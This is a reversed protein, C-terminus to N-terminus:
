IVPISTQENKLLVSWFTVIILYSVVDHYTDTFWFILYLSCFTLLEIFIVCPDASQDLIWVEGGSKTQVNKAEEGGGGRRMHKSVDKKEKDEQSTFAPPKM